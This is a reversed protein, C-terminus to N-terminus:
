ELKEALAATASRETKILKVYGFLSEGALKKIMTEMGKSKEFVARDRQIVDGDFFIVTGEAARSIILALHQITLNECESCMIISNQIDRGRLFQLPIIELQGEQVMKGVKMKDGVHDIFPGLFPEAKEYLTGPLIGFDKTDKVDINNRIWVIKKYRKERLAELGATVLMLTKGSGKKGTILKVTVSDDHLLDFACVQEPNRPNYVKKVRGDKPENIKISARNAKELIGNKKKYISAVTGDVRDLVILYENELLDLPCTGDQYLYVLEEDTPTWVKWGTYEKEEM